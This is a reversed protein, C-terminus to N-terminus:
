SSAVIYGSRLIPRPTRPGTKVVVAVETVPAVSAITHSSANRSGAALIAVGMSLTLAIRRIM